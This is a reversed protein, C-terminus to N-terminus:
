VIVYYRLSSIVQGISLLSSFPSNGSVTFPLYEYPFAIAANRTARLVTPATLVSLIFSITPLM